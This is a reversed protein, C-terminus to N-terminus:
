NCKRSEQIFFIVGAGLETTAAIGRVDMMRNHQKKLLRCSPSVSATSSVSQSDTNLPYKACHSFCNTKNTCVKESLCVM